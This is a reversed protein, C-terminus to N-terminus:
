AYYEIEVSLTGTGNVYITDGCTESPSDSFKLFQEGNAYTRYNSDSNFKVKVDSGTDNEFQLLKFLPITPDTVADYTAGGTLTVSNTKSKIM